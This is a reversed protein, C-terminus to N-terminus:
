EASPGSGLVLRRSHRKQFYPWWLAKNDPGSGRITTDLPAVNTLPFADMRYPFTFSLSGLTPHTDTLTVNSWVVNTPPNAAVPAISTM